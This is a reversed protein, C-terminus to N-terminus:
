KGTNVFHICDGQNKFTRPFDFTMWGGKKCQDKNTPSFGQYEFAGIDAGNAANPYLPSDFPRVFGRQDTPLTSNGADIAPSGMLLAHTLTPVGNDALPALLPDTNIQDGTATLFGSGDDSTLNYGQSVYTTDLAGRNLQRDSINNAVISNRLTTTATVGTTNKNTFIGDGNNGTVTCNDLTLNAARIISVNLIAPAARTFGNGSITTNTLTATSDESALASTGNATNGNFLSDSITLTGLSRIGGGRAITATNGSITSRVITM